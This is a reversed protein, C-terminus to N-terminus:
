NHRAYADVRALLLVGVFTFLLRARILALCHVGIFVEFVLQNSCSVPFWCLCLFQLLPSVCLSCCVGGGWCVCVGSAFGVLFSWGFASRGCRFFM